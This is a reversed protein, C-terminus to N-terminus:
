PSQDLKTIVCLTPEDTSNIGCKNPTFRDPLTTQPHPRPVAAIGDVIGREPHQLGLVVEARHRAGCRTHPPTRPAPCRLSRQETWQATVRHPGPSDLVPDGPGCLPM